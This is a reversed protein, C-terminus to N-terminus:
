KFHYQNLIFGCFLIFMFWDTYTETKCHYGRRKFHNYLNGMTVYPYQFSTKTLSEFYIICYSMFMKCRERQEEMRIYKMVLLHTRCTEYLLRMM